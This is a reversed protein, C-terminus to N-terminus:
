RASEQCIGSNSNMNAAAHDLGHSSTMLTGDPHLTLFFSEAGDQAAFTEIHRSREVLRMEKSWGEGSMIANAKGVELRYSAQYGLPGCDDFSCSELSECDWTKASAASTLVALAIACIITRAM